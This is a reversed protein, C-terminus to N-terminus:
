FYLLCIEGWYNISWSVYKNKEQVKKFQRMRMTVARILGKGSCKLIVTDSVAGWGASERSRELTGRKRWGAVRWKETM